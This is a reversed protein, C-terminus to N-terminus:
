IYYYIDILNEKKYGETGYSSIDNSGINIFLRSPELDFICTEMNAMLESTTTGSVGRNYIIQDIGLALQMENVPFQEMLSSGVFVIQGKKVTENLIKYNHVTNKKQDNFYGMMVTGIVEQVDKNQLLEMMKKGTM